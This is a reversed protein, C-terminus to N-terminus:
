EGIWDRNLFWEWYVTSRQLVSFFLTIYIGEIEMQQTQPAFLDDKWSNWVFFICDKSDSHMTDHKQGDLRTFSTWTGRAVQHFNTASM